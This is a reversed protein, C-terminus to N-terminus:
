LKNTDYYFDNTVKSEDRWKCNKREKGVILREKNM